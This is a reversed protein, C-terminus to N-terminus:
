LGFEKVGREIGERALELATIWKGGRRLFKGAALINESLSQQTEEFHYRGAISQDKVSILFLDLTVAAPTRVSVDSGDREHWETVQPVLLWDVEACQAVKLWHTFAAEVKGKSAETVEKNCADVKPPRIWTDLKSGLLIKDLADDLGNLVKREVKPADEPLYGAMLDRTSQPQFFGAVALTGEPEQAVNRPRQCGALAFLVCAALLAATALRRFHTM